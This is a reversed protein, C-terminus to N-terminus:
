FSMTGDGTDRRRLARLMIAATVIIVLFLVILIYAMNQKTSDDASQPFLAKIETDLFEIKANKALKDVYSEYRALEGWYSKDVYGEHNTYKDEVSLWLAERQFMKYAEEEMQTFYAELTIEMGKMLSHTLEDNTLFERVMELYQDISDQSPEVGRKIVEADVVKERIKKEIIEKLTTDGDFAGNSILTLKSREIDKRLIPLENVLIVPEHMEPADEVEKYKVGLAFSREFDESSYDGFDVDVSQAAFGMFSQEIVM